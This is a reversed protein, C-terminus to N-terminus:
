RPIFPFSRFLPTIPIAEHFLEHWDPDFDDHRLLSIDPNGVCVASMVDGTFASFIHDLRIVKSTGRYEQLRDVM